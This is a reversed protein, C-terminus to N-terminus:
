RSSGQDAAPVRRCYVCLGAYGPKRLVSLRECHPCQETQAGDAVARDIRKQAEVQAHEQVPQLALMTDWGPQEAIDGIWWGLQNRTFDDLLVLARSLLTRTDRYGYRTGDHQLKNRLQRLATITAMANSDFSVGTRALGKLVSPNDMGIAGCAHDRDDLCIKLLLEIAQFLSLVAPRLAEPETRSRAYGAAGANLAAAANQAIDVGYHADGLQASPPPPEPMPVFGADMLDEISGQSARYRAIEAPDGRAFFEIEASAAEWAATNWLKPAAFLEQYEVLPIDVQDDVLVADADFAKEWEDNTLGTGFDRALPTALVCHMQGCSMCVVRHASTYVVEAYHCPCYFYHGDRTADVLALAREGSRLYPTPVRASICFDRYPYPEEAYQFPDSVGYLASFYERQQQGWALAPHEVPCSQDATFYTQLGWTPQIPVILIQRDSLLIGGRRDIRENIDDLMVQIDAAREVLDRRVHVYALLSQPPRLREAPQTTADAGTWGARVVRPPQRESGM